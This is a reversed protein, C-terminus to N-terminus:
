EGGMLLDTVVRGDGKHSKESRYVATVLFLVFAANLAFWIILITQM